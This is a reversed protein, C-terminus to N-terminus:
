GIEAWTIWLSFSILIYVMLRHTMASSALSYATFVSFLGVLINSISLFDIWGQKLALYSGLSAIDKSDHNAAYENDLDTQAFNYLFYYLTFITYILLNLFLIGRSFVNDTSEAANDQDQNCLDTQKLAWVLTLINLLTM